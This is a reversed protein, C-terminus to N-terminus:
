NEKFKTGKTFDMCWESGTSDEIRALMYGNQPTWKDDPCTIKSPHWQLDDAVTSKRSCGVLAASCLLLITLYRM